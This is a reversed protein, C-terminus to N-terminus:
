ENMVELARQLYWAAKRLDTATSGKLPARWVYKMVNGIHYGVHPPYTRIVQEIADICEIDGTKYHPPHNIPDTM